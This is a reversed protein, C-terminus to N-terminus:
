RPLSRALVRVADALEAENYRAFALRIFPRSKGDLSFDRLCDGIL